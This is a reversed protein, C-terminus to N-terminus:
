AHDPEKLAVRQTNGRKSEENVPAARDELPAERIDTCKMGFQRITRKLIWRLSRIADTGPLPELVLVYRQRKTPV